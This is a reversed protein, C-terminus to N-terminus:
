RGGRMLGSVLLLVGIAVGVLLDWLQLWYGGEFYADSRARDAAPLTALYAQTAREVDFGPGPRAAEPIALDARPTPEVPEEARAQARAFACSLVLVALVVLRRM